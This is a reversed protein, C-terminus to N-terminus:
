HRRHQTSLRRESQQRLQRVRDEGIGMFEGISQDVKATHQRIRSEYRSRLVINFYFHIYFMNEYHTLGEGGARHDLVEQWEQLHAPTNTQRTEALIDRLPYRSPTSITCPVTLNTMGPASITANPLTLGTFNPGQAIPLEWCSLGMLVWKKLFERFESDSGGDFFLSFSQRLGLPRRRNRIEDRENLYVPNTILWGLFSRLQHTVPDLLQKLAAIKAKMEEMTTQGGWMLALQKLNETSITPPQLYNSTVVSDEVIGVGGAPQCFSTLDKEFDLDEPSLWCRGPTALEEIFDMPLAYLPDLKAIPSRPYRARFARCREAEPDRPVGELASTSSQPITM